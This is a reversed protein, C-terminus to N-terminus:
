KTIAKRAAARCVIGEKFTTGALVEEPMQAAIEDECMQACSEYSQGSAACETGYARWKELATDDVPKTNKVACAALMVFSLIAIKIKM